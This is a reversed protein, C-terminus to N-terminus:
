GTRGIVITIFVRSNNAPAAATGPATATTTEFSATGASAVLTEPRIDGGVGTAEALQVMGGVWHAFTGTPLGAITYDGATGGLTIGPSSNAADLTLVTGNSTAQIFVWKLRGLMRDTHTSNTQTEEFM